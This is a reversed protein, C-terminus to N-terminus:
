RAGYARISSACFACDGGTHTHGDNGDARRGGYNKEPEPQTQAEFEIRAQESLERRAAAEIQSASAAVKMDQGSPDAPAMAAARVQQANAVTQEPSGGTSLAIPVEGGIAYQKGDPGTQFSFSAGGAAAGGAAQHAAEHARVELDRSQLAQVLEEAEPSLEVITASDEGKARRAVPAVESVPPEPEAGHAVHSSASVSSIM